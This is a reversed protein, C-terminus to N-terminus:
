DDYLSASSEGIATYELIRSRANAHRESFQSRGICSAKRENIWLSTIAVREIPDRYLSHHYTIRSAISLYAKVIFYSRWVFRSFCAKRAGPSASVEATAILAISCDANYGM